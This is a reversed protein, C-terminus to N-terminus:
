NKEGWAVLDGRSIPAYCFRYCRFTIIGYAELVHVEGM